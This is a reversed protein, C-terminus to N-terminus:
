PKEPILDIEPSIIFKGDDWDIGCGAGKVNIVSTGGFGSGPIEICVIDEGKRPCIRLQSGIRNYLDQLTM